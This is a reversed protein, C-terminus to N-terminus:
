ELRSLAELAGIVQVHRTVVNTLEIQLKSQQQQIEDMRAELAKREHEYKELLDKVTDNM